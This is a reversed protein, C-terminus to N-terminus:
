LRVFFVHTVSLSACWEAVRLVRPTTDCVHTYSGRYHFSAFCFVEILFSSVVRVCLAFTQPKKNYLFSVFVGVGPISGPDGAHRAPISVVTSYRFATLYPIGCSEICVIDM